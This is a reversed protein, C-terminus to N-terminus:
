AGVIAGAAPMTQEVAVVQRLRVREELLVAALGDDEAAEHRDDAREHREDGAGAGHGVAREREVVHGAADDPDADAREGAVREAVHRDHSFLKVSTASPMM